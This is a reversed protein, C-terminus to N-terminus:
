FVIVMKSSACFWFDLAKHNSSNRRHAHMVNAYCRWNFFGGIRHVQEYECERLYAFCEALTDYKSAYNENRKQQQKPWSIVFFTVKQCYEIDCRCQLIARPIFVSQMGMQLKLDVHRFIYVNAVGVAM